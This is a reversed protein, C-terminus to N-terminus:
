KRGSTSIIRASAVCKPVSCFLVFISLLAALELMDTLRGHIMLQDEYRLSPLINNPIHPVSEGSATARRISAGESAPLNQKNFSTFATGSHNADVNAASSRIRAPNFQVRFTYGNVDLEKEPSCERLREKM